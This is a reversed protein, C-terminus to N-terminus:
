KAKNWDSSRGLVADHPEHMRDSGFVKGEASLMARDGAGERLIRSEVTEHRSVCGMKGKQMEVEGNSWTGIRLSEWSRGALGTNGTPDSSRGKRV